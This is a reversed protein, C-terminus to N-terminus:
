LGVSQLRGPKEAWPIEWALISCHTAMRKELPDEQALFQVRTEPKAPLNFLVFSNVEGRLGGPFILLSHLLQILNSCFELHTIKLLGKPFPNIESGTLFDDRM